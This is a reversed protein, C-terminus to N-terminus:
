GERYAEDRRRVYHVILAQEGVRYIIRYDGVRYRQYGEWAGKHPIGQRPHDALVLLADGARGKDESSLKRIDKQARNAPRVIM